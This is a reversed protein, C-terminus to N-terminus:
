VVLGLPDDRLISTDLCDFVVHARARANRKCAWKSIQILTWDALGRTPILGLQFCASTLYLLTCASRQGNGQPRLELGTVTM